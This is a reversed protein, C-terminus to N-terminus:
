LVLKKILNFYFQQCPHDKDLFEPHPQYCLSRTHEYWVCEIDSGRALDEYYIITDDEMHEHFTSESAVMLVQGKESPRMMQHHTSTVEVMKGTEADVALHTGPIAHNDVHQWLKGGSMVNLFQGGRCIGVMPIGKNLAWEFLRAEVHDRDPNSWTEPHDGEGYMFPSVDAGGTFQIVDANRLNKVVNFGNSRWMKEYQWNSHEIFVRTKM